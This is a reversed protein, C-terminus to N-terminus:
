WIDLGQISRKFGEDNHFFVMEDTRLNTMRPNASYLIKVLYRVMTQSSISMIQCVFCKGNYQNM